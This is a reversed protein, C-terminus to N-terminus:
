GFLGLRGYPLVVDLIESFFLYLVATTAIALLITAIWSKVNLLRFLAAMFIPTMLWYGLIEVLVTYVVLVGAVLLIKLKSPKDKLEERAVEEDAEPLSVGGEPVPPQQESARRKKILTSGALIVSLLIVVGAIVQPYFASNAFPGGGVAQETVFQTVTLYIVFLALLFMFGASILNKKNESEM